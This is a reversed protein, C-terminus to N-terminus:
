ISVKAYTGGLVMALLILAIVLRTHRDLLSMCYPEVLDPLDPIRRDASRGM